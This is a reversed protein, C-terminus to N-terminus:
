THRDGIVASSERDIDAARLFDQVLGIRPKRCECGDAAFHPCIFIAEFEIGQSRFAELIFQHAQEFAAHPHSPTGLGDQNTVM